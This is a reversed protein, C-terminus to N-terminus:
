SDINAQPEDTCWLHELQANVLKDNPKHL